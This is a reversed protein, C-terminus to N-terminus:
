GVLMPWVPWFYGRARRRGSASSSCRAARGCAGAHIALRAARTALRRTAADVVGGLRPDRAAAGLALLTWTRGSTGARADAGLHRDAAPEAGASLARTSRCRAGSAADATQAVPAGPAGPQGLLRPSGRGRPARARASSGRARARAGALGPRSSRRARAGLTDVHWAGIARTRGATSSRCRSSGCRRARSARSRRGRAGFGLSCACSSTPRSRALVGRRRPDGRIRGWYGPGAPRAAAAARVDVGLLARALAAELGAALGRAWPLRGAGPRGAADGRAAGVAIWGALLLWLWLPAGLPLASLLM